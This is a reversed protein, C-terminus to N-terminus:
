TDVFAAITAPDPRRAGPPPMMGARLKRIMKEATETRKDLQAADFGQLVLGGAKGRESHCTACYQAVMQNQADTTLPLGATQHSVAMKVPTKAAPAVANQEATAGAGLFATLVAAYAFKKM